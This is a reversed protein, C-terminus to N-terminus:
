SEYFGNEVLISRCPLPTSMWSRLTFSGLAADLSVQGILTSHNVGVLVFPFSTEEAVAILLSVQVQQSLLYDDLSPAIINDWVASLRHAGLSILAKPKLYAEMGTPKMWVDPNSRAVLRPKSPFGYLYHKAEVDSPLYAANTPPGPVSYLSEVQTQPQATHHKKCVM